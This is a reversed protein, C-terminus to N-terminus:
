PKAPDLLKSAVQDITPEPLPTPPSGDLNLSYHVDTIREPHRGSPLMDKVLRPFQDDVLYVRTEKEEFTTTDHGATDGPRYGVAALRKHLECSSVGLALLRQITARLTDGTQATEEYRRILLYLTADTPPDLQDLGHIRVTLGESASTAKVELATDAARFDIRDKKWGWWADLAAIPNQEALRELWQLEALLGITASRGLGETPTAQFMDRWRNVVARCAPTEPGGSRLELLLDDALRAFISAFEPATAHIDLFSGTRGDAGELERPLLHVGVSFRDPTVDEDASVPILIHRRGVDDIALLPPGNPLSLSQPLVRLGGETAGGGEALLQYNLEAGGVGDPM